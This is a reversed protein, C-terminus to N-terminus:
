PMLSTGGNSAGCWVDEVADNTPPPLPNASGPAIVRAWRPTRNM